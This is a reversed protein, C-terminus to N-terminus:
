RPPRSARDLMMLAGAAASAANWARAADAHAQADIRAAAATTGLVCVKVLADQTESTRLATLVKRVTAFEAIAERLSPEPVDTRADISALVPRLRELRGAASVLTANQAEAIRASRRPPPKRAAAAPTPVDPPGAAGLVVRIRGAARERGDVRHPSPQTLDIVVRTVIPDEQNLAVRVRRVIGDASGTTGSTAPRVGALDLYIRPPDALVGVRPFPLPGDAEIRVTVGDADRDLAISRLRPVGANVQDAAASPPRIGGGPGLANQCRIAERDACNAASRVCAPVTESSFPRETLLQRVPATCATALVAGAIARSVAVRRPM